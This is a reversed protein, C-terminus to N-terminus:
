PARGFAAEGLVAVCAGVYEVRGSIMLGCSLRSPLRRTRTTSRSRLLPVEFLPVTLPADNTWGGDELPPPEGGWGLVELELAAADSGPQEAPEPPQPSPASDPELPADNM